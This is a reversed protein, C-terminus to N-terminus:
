LDFFGVKRIQSNPLDEYSELQKSASKSDSPATVSSKPHSQSKNEESSSLKKSVKGTKVAALVDGKLLTGHPGSASISSPDLGYEAIIM